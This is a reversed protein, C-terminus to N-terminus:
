KRGKRKLRLPITKVYGILRGINEGYRAKAKIFIEQSKLEDETMWSAMYHHIARTNDTIEIKGSRYDIPCLVDKRYIYVDGTKLTIDDVTEIMYQSLLNSVIQVVTTTDEKGFENIFHRKQYEDLIHSYLEMGPTAYLGLGPAVYIGAQKEVVSSDQVRNISGFDFERELGMFPGREILDDIPKILEVDTDFYLGGYKYLIWFRAYDSVFAWRKQEYAEKIYDCSTYDFNDENWEIIEYDPCYKKWSEICKIALEPLPNRGFWCYHIKKPIM